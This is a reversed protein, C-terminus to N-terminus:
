CGHPCAAVWAPDADADYGELEKYNESMSNNIETSCCDPGCCASRSTEKDHLAIESYKQKVLERVNEVTHM